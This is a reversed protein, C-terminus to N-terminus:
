DAYDMEKRQRMALRHELFADMGGYFLLTGVEIEEIRNYHLDKSVLYPEINDNYSAVGLKVLAQFKLSTIGERNDLCHAALMTDWGWNTVGHGFFKRTWREEFKLNSAIKRTRQSRLFKGTAEIARGIWPYSITREGNSIACSRILAKPYEPKLCNGEYDIAAWGGCRDIDRIAEYIEDDDYLVEIKSAFDRAPPPDRDIRFARKLDQAFLRDMLGNKMRLLFSPHYTPCVWHKPLPIRWGTWRQMQGVDDWSDALVSSLAVRGLTVIVRPEYLQIANLLNPRCYSIQKADPTANNPPRCILANTTWADRDLDIDFEELTERLFVGANGIFPRNAEDETEGPAEGVVMVKLKGNGHVPM